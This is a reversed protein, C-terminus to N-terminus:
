VKEAQAGSTRANVWTPGGTRRLAASIRYSSALDKRDTAFTTAPDKRVSDKLGSDAQCGPASWPSPVFPAKM